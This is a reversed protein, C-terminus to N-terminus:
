EVRGELFNMWILTLLLHRISSLTAGILWVESIVRRPGGMWMNYIHGGHRHRARALYFYSLGQLPLLTIVQAGLCTLFFTLLIFYSEAGVPM